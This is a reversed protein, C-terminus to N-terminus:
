PVRLPPFNDVIDVHAPFRRWGGRRRPLLRWRMPPSPSFACGGIYKKLADTYMQVAINADRNDEEEEALYVVVGLNVDGVRTEMPVGALPTFGHVNYVFEYERREPPFFERAWEAPLEEGTETLKLGRKLLEYIKEQRKKDMNDLYIM